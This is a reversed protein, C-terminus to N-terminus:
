TPAEEEVKEVVMVCSEEEVMQVQWSSAAEEVLDHENTTAGTFGFYHALTWVILPQAWKGPNKSSVTMQRFIDGDPVLTWSFVARITGSELVYEDHLGPVKASSQFARYWNDPNEAFTRIQEAREKAFDLQIFSAL